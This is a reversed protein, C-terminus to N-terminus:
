SRKRNDAWALIGGRRAGCSACRLRRALDRACECPRAFQFVQAWEWLVHYQCQGCHLSLGRTTSGDGLQVGREKSDWEVM